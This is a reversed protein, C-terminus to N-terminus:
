PAVIEVAGLPATPGLTTLDPDLLPLNQQTFADYMALALQAIGPQADAPLTLTHRDAVRSGAIWKLTPIAGGAPTADSQVRWAWNPGILDVKVTYDGVIPRTALFQLDVTVTEGPHLPGTPSISRGILLISSGLPIASPPGSAASRELEVSTLTVEALRTGDPRYVGAVLSYTGAPANPYRTIHYRDLLVEGSVYRAAPHSVDMQGYLKGEPGVLHIFFNVDRTPSSPQLRWAATLTLDGSQASLHSLSELHYGLFTWEDFDQGGSLNPPPPTLREARVEWAPGLPLFRYPLAEFEQRYFSTVVVPRVALNIHIEEAWNQALSEGHPVVYRIEVDPRRHEIERLYWMPTAWHWSALVVANPPAANLVGEVYERTSPDHALARYSPFTSIFQLGAVLVGLSLTVLHRLSLRAGIFAAGKAREATFSGRGDLLAALALGMLVAILVYAPLLYEVTQPARYTIAIFIHALCAAILVAGFHRDRWLAVLVGLGILTLAPWTFQFTLINGFISVREPLATLNAFYLIDGGFGRALVHELFGELTGINPPAGYAGARLPFYLWALFPALGWVLPWPRRLVKPNLWLAYSGLVAAIFILSGHHSVGLGLAFAVWGLRASTIADRAVQSTRDAILWLRYATLREVAWAVALAAPMRINATTAQAWFTTSFGLVGAACVGAWASGTLQRVTRGVLMLTLAALLASLWNIATAPPAWFLLRTTLWSVLTYLAFGPPHAVGLLAGILQYEGADAPLPGPSLTLTYLLLFFIGVGLEWSGFSPPLLLTPLFGRREDGNPGRSGARRPSVAKM